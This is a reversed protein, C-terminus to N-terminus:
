EVDEALKMILVFAITMLRFCASSRLTQRAGASIAKEPKIVELPSTPVGPDQYELDGPGVECSVSFGDDKSGDTDYAATVVDPCYSLDRTTILFSSEELGMGVVWGDPGHGAKRYHLSSNLPGGQYLTHGNYDGVKEYDGSLGPQLGSTLKINPCCEFKVADSHCDISFSEDRSSTEGSEYGGFIGAPCQSNSNLTTIYFSDELLQPGVVWGQPLNDDKERFYLYYDGTDSHKVYVPHHNGAIRQSSVTYIGLSFPASAALGATSSLFVQSCCTSQVQAQHLDEGAAFQTMVLVALALPSPLAM